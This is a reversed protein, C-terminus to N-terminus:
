LFFCSVHELEIVLTKMNVVSDLSAKEKGGKGDASSDSGKGGEDGSSGGERQMSKPREDEKENARRSNEPDLLNLEEGLRKYDGAM